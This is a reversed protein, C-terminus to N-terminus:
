SRGYQWKWVAYQACQLVKLERVVRAMNKQRRTKVFVCTREKGQFMRQIERTGYDNDNWEHVELM